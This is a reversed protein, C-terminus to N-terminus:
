YLFPIAGELVHQLANARFSESIPIM